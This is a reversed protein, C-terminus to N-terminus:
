VKQEGENRTLFATKLRNSCTARLVEQFQKKRRTTNSLFIIFIVGTAVVLFM